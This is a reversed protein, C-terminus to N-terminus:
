RNTTKWQGELETAENNRILYITGDLLELCDTRKVIIPRDLVFKAMLSLEDGQIESVTTDSNSVRFRFPIM